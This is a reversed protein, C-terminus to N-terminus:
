QVIRGNEIEYGREKLLMAVALKEDGSRSKFMRILRDDDYQDFKDKYNNIREVKNKGGDVAMGAIKGLGSLLGM